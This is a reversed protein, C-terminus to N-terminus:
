PLAPLVGNKGRSKWHIDGGPCWKLHISGQLDTRVFAITDEGVVYPGHSPHHYSNGLGCSILILEPRFVELFPDSGSTRSGHHGAKWVRTQGLPNETELLLAEGENELDGTWLYQTQNQKQLAVVMSQDNEALGTLESEDPYLVLLRWDSWRHLIEAPRSLRCCIGTTDPAFAAKAHGSVLWQDIAREKRLAVVGGTHDLHGHSLLVLNPTALNHRHLWPLISHGLPGKTSRAGFGYRGGTDIMASWGDPFLVLGCDGQGVDFQWVEPAKARTPWPNSSSFVGLLLIWAGISFIWAKRRSFNGKAAHKWTLFVCGSLVFWVLLTTTTPAPLGLNWGDTRSDVWTVLGSLGRLILWAWSMLAPGIGFPLWIAVLALVVFWIAAGFLPVVVLNALPALLSLRGFSSAVMPLTSWQATGSILLGSLLFYLLKKNKPLLDRSFQSLSLIGFAAGYSLRVGMDLVQHPNWLTTAWFLLGLLHLPRSRRGFPQGFHALLALGSARVVSGPLGTLLCYAPLILLLFFSRHWPSVGLVRAPLLFLGLLIGVHLGSVAFLHALGLEAFPQGSTRSSSDRSGLLVAATLSAEPPPLNNEFISLLLSRFPALIKAYAVTLLGQRPLSIKQLCKGKFLIDRGQLYLRQNFMGPLDGPPPVRLQLVGGWLEGPFPPNAPGRILIRDGRKPPEFSPWNASSSGWGLLIGPAQWKGNKLPTAWGTCRILYKGVWTPAVSPQLPNTAFASVRGSRRQAELNGALFGLGFVLSWILVQTRANRAWFLCAPTLASVLVLTGSASPISLPGFLAIGASYNNGWAFAVFHIM